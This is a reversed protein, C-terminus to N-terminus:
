IVLNRCEINISHILFHLFTHPAFSYANPPPILFISTHACYENMYMGQRMYCKQFWLYRLAAGYQSGARRPLHTHVAFRSTRKWGWFSLCLFGFRLHLLGKPLNRSRGRANRELRIIQRCIGGAVCGGTRGETIEACCSAATHQRTGAKRVVTRFAQRPACERLSWLGARRTNYSM